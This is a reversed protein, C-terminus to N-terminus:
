GEYPFWDGESGTTRYWHHEGETFWEYGQDDVSTATMDPTPEFASEEVPSNNHDEFSADEISDSTELEEYGALDVPEISKDAGPRRRMLVTAGVASGMLALLGMVPLLWEGENGSSAGDETGTASSENAPLTRVAEHRGEDLVLENVSNLARFTWQLPVTLDTSGNSLRLGLEANQMPAIVLTEGTLHVSDLSELHVEVPMPGRNTAMCTVLLHEETTTTTGNFMQCSSTVDLNFSARYDLEVSQQDCGTENTADCVTVTFRQTPASPGGFDFTLDFTGSSINRQASWNSGEMDVTVTGQGTRFATDGYVRFEVDNHQGTLVTGVVWPELVTVNSAEMQTAPNGQDDTLEVELTYTGPEVGTMDFVASATTQPTTLIVKRMVLDDGNMLNIAGSYTEGEEGTWAMNVSLSEGAEISAVHEFTTVTPGTSDTLTIAGDPGVQFGDNVEAGLGTTERMTAEVSWRGMDGRLPNWQGTYRSANSDWTLPVNTTGLTDHQLDISVELDDRQNSENVHFEFSANSIGWTGTATNGSELTTGEIVFSAIEPAAPYLTIPYVPFPTLENMNADTVRFTLNTPHTSTADMGTTPMTLYYGGLPPSYTMNVANGTGDEHTWGYGLFEVSLDQENAGDLVIMSYTEGVRVDPQIATGQRHELTRIQPSIDDTWVFSPQRLTVQYAPANQPSTSGSFAIRYDTGPGLCQGATSAYYTGCEELILNNVSPAVDVSTSYNWPAILNSATATVPGDFGVTIDVTSWEMGSIDVSTVTRPEQNLVAMPISLDYGFATWNASANSVGTAGVTVSTLNPHHLGTSNAQNWQMLLHMDETITANNPIELTITHAAGNGSQTLNNTVGIQSQCGLESCSSLLTQSGGYTIDYTSLVSHQVTQLNFGIIEPSASGTRNLVYMFQIHRHRPLTEGSINGEMWATWHDFSTTNGALTYRQFVSLNTDAPQVVNHSVVAQSTDGSQTTIPNTIFAGNNVTANSTSTYGAWTSASTVGNSGASGDVGDIGTGYRLGKTGGGGGNAQVTGANTYQGTQTAISIRGGGGGGGGDGGDYMGFGPGNQAGNAGDGGDGGNARISGSSGVIVSNAQIFVAGGSGGGGGSGGAGTGSSMQGGNDGDGGNSQVSGNVELLGTVIRIFGGGLGGTVSPHLSSSVGGGQSGSQSGNGYTSGASGGSTGGGAGGSGGHGAGGGGDNRGNSATTTTGGGGSGGATNDNATISTGTNVLVTNAYITLAGNAVIQGCTSSGCTLELTDYNHTGSWTVLGNVVTSNSGAQPPGALETELVISAGDILTGTGTGTITGTAVDFGSNVNTPQGEYTATFSGETMRHGQELPISPHVPVGVLTVIETMSPTFANFTSSAVRQPRELEEVLVSDHDPVAVISLTTSLVMLACLTLATILRRQM